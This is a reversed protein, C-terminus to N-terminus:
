SGTWFMQFCSARVRANTKGSGKEGGRAACQSLTQSRSVLVQGGLLLTPLIYTLPFHIEIL